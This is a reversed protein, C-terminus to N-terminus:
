TWLFRPSILSPLGPRGGRSECLEQARIHWNQPKVVWIHMAGYQTASGNQIVEGAFLQGKQKKQKKNKTSKRVSFCFSFFFFFFGWKGHLVEAWISFPRSSLSLPLHPQFGFCVNYTKGLEHQFHRRSCYHPLCSNDGKTQLHVTHISNVRMSKTLPHFETSFIVYITTETRLFRYTQMYDHAFRRRRLKLRKSETECCKSM